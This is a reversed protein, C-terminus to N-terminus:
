AKLYWYCNWMLLGLCRQIIECYCMIRCYTAAYQMLMAKLKIHLVMKFGWTSLGKSYCSTCFSWDKRNLVVNLMSYFSTVLVTLIKETGSKCVNVWSNIKLYAHIQQLVLAWSSPFRLFTTGSYFLPETIEMDQELSSWHHISWM